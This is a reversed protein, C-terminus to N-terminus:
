TRRGPEPPDPWAAVVPWWTTIKGTGGIDHVRQVDGVQGPTAQALEPPRRRRVGSAPCERLLGLDM